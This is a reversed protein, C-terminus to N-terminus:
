QGCGVDDCHMAGIGAIAAGQKGSTDLEVFHLRLWPAAPGREEARASRAEMGLGEEDIVGTAEDAREVEIRARGRDVGLHPQEYGAWGYRLLQLGGELCLHPRVDAVRQREAVAAEDPGFAPVPLVECM